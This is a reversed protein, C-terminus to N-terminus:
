IILFLVAPLQPQPSLHSSPSFLRSHPTCCWAPCLKRVAVPIPSEPSFIPFSALTEKGERHPQALAPSLLPHEPHQAEQISLHTSLIPSSTALSSSVFYTLTISVCGRPQPQHPHSHLSSCPASAENGKAAKRPQAVSLGLESLIQWYVKCSHTKSNTQRWGRERRAPM